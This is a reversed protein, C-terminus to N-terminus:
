TRRVHGMDSESLISAAAASGMPVRSTKATSRDRPKLLREAREDLLPLSVTFRARLDDPRIALL